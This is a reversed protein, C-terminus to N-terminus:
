NDSSESEGGNGGETGDGDGVGGDSNNENEASGAEFANGADNSGATDGSAGAGDVVAEAAAPAAAVEAIHEYGKFKQVSLVIVGGIFLCFALLQSVRIGTSGIYLSDTRLGEIFMRGLGYWTVYMLFIQGDYKKRKVFAMIVFFGIINWLSEYLFTPHFYHTIGVANKIGMRCFIDTESGHAEANVFNGWRGIAQGLLAAHGGMDLIKLFSIHKVKSVVLIAAIVGIIGGYIALGGRWVAIINVFTDRINQLAGGGTAIYSGLGDFIVYYLRAGIIGFIICFIFYDLIDDASIGAKVAKMYVVTCVSVIALTVIIGYWAIERGFITFAVENVDFEGIGLGPFSLTNIQLLLNSM